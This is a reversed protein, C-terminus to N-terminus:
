GEHSKCPLVRDVTPLAFVIPRLWGDLYIMTIWNMIIMIRRPLVGLGIKRGGKGGKAWRGQLHTRTAPSAKGAELAVSQQPWWPPERSWVFGEDRWVLRQRAPFPNAVAGITRAPQRCPCCKLALRREARPMLSIKLLLRHFGSAPIRVLAAVAAFCTYPCAPFM